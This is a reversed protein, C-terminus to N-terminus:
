RDRSYQQKEHTKEQNKATKLLRTLNYNLISYFNDKTLLENDIHENEISNNEIITNRDTYNEIGQTTYNEISQLPYNEISRLHPHLIRRKVTKSTPNYEYETTLYKREILSSIMQKVRPVSVGLFDAFHQNTAFCRDNRDLDCIEKMLFLEAHSLNNDLYLEIPINISPYAYRDPLKIPNRM